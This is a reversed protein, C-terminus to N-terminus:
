GLNCSCHPAFYTDSQNEVPIPDKPSSFKIKVPKFSVKFGFHSLIKSIEFSISSYFPLVVPNLCPDSHCVSHKPKKLKNLTKDIISPNYGRSLALSKLCNLENFLNFPDSCIHLAHYLYIYFAPMMKQQPPHNFLTHLPVM